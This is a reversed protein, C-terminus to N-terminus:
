QLGTWICLSYSSDRFCNLKRSFFSPCFFAHIDVQSTFFLTKADDVHMPTQQLSVTIAINSKFDIQSPPIRIYCRCSQLVHFLYQLSQISVGFVTAPRRYFISNFSVIQDIKSLYIMYLHQLFSSASHWRTHLDESGNFKRMLKRHLTSSKRQQMSWLIVDSHM